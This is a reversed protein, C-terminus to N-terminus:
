KSIDIRKLTIDGRFLKPNAAENTMQGILEDQSKTKLNVLDPNLEGLILTNTGANTYTYFTYHDVFPKPGSKAYVAVLQISGVRGHFAEMELPGTFLANTEAYTMVIRYHEGDKATIEFRERGGSLQWSGLYTRDIERVPKDPLGVEYLCGSLLVIGIVVVTANTKAGSMVFSRLRM